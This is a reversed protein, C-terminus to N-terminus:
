QSSKGGKWFALVEERNAQADLTGASIALATVGAAVVCAISTGSGRQVGRAGVPAAIHWGPALLDLRPRRSCSPLVTACWDVAGVAVAGPHRAPFVTPEPYGNGAAAFFVVGARAYHEIKQAIVQDEAEQGIPLAVLKAGSAVVWDIGAAVAQPSAPGSPQMVEAVLLRAAPAIGQIHRRGQGALLAASFTGHEGCGGDHTTVNLFSRVLIHAGLLDAITRDVATDLLGITTGQGAWAEWEKLYMLIPIPASRCRVAETLRELKEHLRIM